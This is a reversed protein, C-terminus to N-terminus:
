AAVLTRKCPMRFRYMNVSIIGFLYDKDYTQVIQFGKKLYLNKAETHCETTNLEIARFAKQGVCHRIATELLRQGVGNRQSDEAVGLRRSLAGSGPPERMDPDRKVCVAISGVVRGDDAEALWFGTKESSQYVEAVRDLDGHTAHAKVKHATWVAAFVFAATAPLALLCYHLPLGVLIFISAAAMLMSQAVIDRTLTKVFFRNVTWMASADMLRKVAARDSAVFPRIRPRRSM